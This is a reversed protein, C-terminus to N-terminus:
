IVIKQLWKQKVVLDYGDGYSHGIGSTSWGGIADSIDSPCEVARLRDRLAHRFSYVVCGDPVRPKLWKNLAASASNANCKSASTYNSFAFQAETQMIQGAAWYSKGILPVLRESSATKLKRWPHKQIILHPIETDLVIDEKILGLAESLRLGTDSILALLHRNPDNTAECEAQLIKITKVPMTPRSKSRDDAPIFVKAFPNTIPLGHEQIALSVISRISAFCRKVSSSALGREILHDRFSAADASTLEGISPDGVVAYFQEINRRATREFAEGKGNGKLRLYLDLAESLSISTEGSTPRELTM